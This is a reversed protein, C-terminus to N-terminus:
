RGASWLEDWGRAALLRSLVEARSGRWSDAGLCKFNIEDAVLLSLKVLDFDPECGYGAFIPEWWRSEAPLLGAMEIGLKLFDGLPNGANSVEMDVVGTVVGNSQDVFFQHAHCDGHAFRPPSFSARFAARHAAFFQKVAAMLAGPVTKADVAWTAEIAALAPEFASGHHLWVDPDVAQERHVRGLYSPRDFTIAHMGRLYAGVRRGAAALRSEDRVTETFPHGALGRLLLYPRGLPNDWSEEATLVTPTALGNAKLIAYADAEHDVALTPALRLDWEYWDKTHSKLFFRDDGSDIQWVHNATHLLQVDVDHPRVGSVVLIQAAAEATLELGAGLGALGLPNVDPQSVFEGAPAPEYDPEVETM